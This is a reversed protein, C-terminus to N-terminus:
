IIKPVMPKRSIHHMCQYDIEKGSLHTSVKFDLASLNPITSIQQISQYNLKVKCVHSLDILM